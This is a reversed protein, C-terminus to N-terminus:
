FYYLALSLVFRYIIFWYVAFPKILRTLIINHWRWKTKRKFLFFCQMFYNKDDENFLLGVNDTSAVTPSSLCSGRKKGWGCFETVSNLTVQGIQIAFSFEFPDIYRNKSDFEVITYEKKHFEELYVKQVDKIITNKGM